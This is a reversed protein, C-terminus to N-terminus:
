GQMVVQGRFSELIVAVEDYADQPAGSAKVSALVDAVATDFEADNLKLHKHATVMDAGAYNNPGGTGATFFAIVSDILWEHDIHQFYAVVEPNELHRDITGEVITRVGEEGGLREYLTADDGAFTTTNFAMGLLVCLVVKRIM